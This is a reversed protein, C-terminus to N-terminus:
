FKFGIGVGLALPDLKLDSVKSGNLFVDSKIYIKKLDVNLFMNNGIKYDFGVQLAAGTSNNELGLSGAAGASMNVSSIKTYNIGAGVYPRFDAEPTFHYQLTLTPPLHKFTGVNGLGLANVTVNHKQPYTLILEAAINKTFFYSFDVEPITKDSAAITNAPLAGTLAGVGAGSKNDMNLNVARIRMMWPGEAKQQAFAGASTALAVAAVALRTKYTTMNFSGRKSFYAFVQCAYSFVKHLSTDESGRRVMQNLDLLGSERRRCRTTTM